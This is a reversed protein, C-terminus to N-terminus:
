HQVNRYIPECQVPILLLYYAGGALALPGVYCFSTALTLLLFFPGALLYGFHESREVKTADASIQCPHLLLSSFVSAESDIAM